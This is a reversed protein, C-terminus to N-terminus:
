FRTSKVFPPQTHVPLGWHMTGRDDWSAAEPTISHGSYARQFEPAPTYVAPEAPTPPTPVVVKRKRRATTAIV